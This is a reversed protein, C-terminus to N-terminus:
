DPSHLGMNWFRDAPLRDSSTSSTNSQAARAAQLGPEEGVAVGNVSGVAVVSAGVAGVSVARGGVWGGVSVTAGGVSVAAGGVWAAASVGVKAGTASRAHLCTPRTPLATCLMAPRGDPPLM